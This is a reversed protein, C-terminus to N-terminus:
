LLGTPQEIAHEDIVVTQRHDVALRDCRFHGRQSRFPYQIESAARAGKHPQQGSGLGVSLHRDALGERPAM